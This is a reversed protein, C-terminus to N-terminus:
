SRLAILENTIITNMKNDINPNRETIANAIKVRIAETVLAMQMSKKYDGHYNPIERQLGKIFKLSLIKPLYNDYLIQAENFQTKLNAIELFRNEIAQKQESSANPLEYCLCLMMETDQWEPFNERFPVAILKDFFLQVLDYKEEAFFSELLGRLYLGDRGIKFKQIKKLKGFFGKQMGDQCHMELQNILTQM